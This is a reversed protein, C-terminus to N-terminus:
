NQPGPDAQEDSQVTFPVGAMHSLCALILGSANGYVGARAPGTPDEWASLTADALAELARALGAMERIWVGGPQQELDARADYVGAAYAEVHSRVVSPGAAVLGDYLDRLREVVAVPSTM